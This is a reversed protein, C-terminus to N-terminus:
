YLLGEVKVSSNGAVFNAVQEHNLKITMALNGNDVRYVDLRFYNDDVDGGIINSLSIRLEAKEPMQNERFSVQNTSSVPEM